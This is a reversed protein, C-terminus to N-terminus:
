AQASRTTRRRRRRRLLVFVVTAVALALTALVTPVILSSASLAVPQGVGSDPFTLTATATRKVMGSHLTLTATWPGNPLRRGLVVVVQGSGGPKLTM